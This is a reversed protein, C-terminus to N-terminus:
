IASGIGAFIGILTIVTSVGIVAILIRVIWNKNEKVSSTDKLLGFLIFAGVLACGLAGIGVVLLLAYADGIVSQLKELLAAFTTGNADELYSAPNNSKGAETAADTAADGLFVMRGVIDNIAWGIKNMM